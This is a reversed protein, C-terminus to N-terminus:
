AERQTKRKLERKLECVRNRARLCVNQIKNRDCDCKGRKIQRDKKVERVKVLERKNELM